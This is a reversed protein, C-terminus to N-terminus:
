YHGACVRGDQHDLSPYYLANPCAAMQFFATRCAHVRMTELSVFVGIILPSDVADDHQRFQGSIAFRTSTAHLTRPETQAGTGLLVPFTVLEDCNQRYGNHEILARSTPKCSRPTPNAIYEGHTSDVVINLCRGCLGLYIDNVITWYRETDNM